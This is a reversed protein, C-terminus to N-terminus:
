CSEPGTRLFRLWPRMNQNGHNKEKMKKYNPSNKNRLFREQKELVEVEQKDKEPIGRTAYSRQM